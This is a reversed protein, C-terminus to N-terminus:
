KLNQIYHDAMHAAMAGDGTATVVQRFQTTRVDGAAFFGPVSTQMTADTAIFGARDMEVFGKFMDSNPQIGVFIFVADTDIVDGNDLKVGTVKKQDESLVEVVNRSLRLKINSNKVRDVLVQQGRFADRRHVITVDDSLKALYLADTLATDGGGVVVIRKGRFFPGDCTACYSVGRGAYQEEGKAGLHRHSAGTAAIVAKAVIEGDETEVHFRNGEKRISKAGNFAIEVGFSEAQNQLSEALQYGKTTPVGPYNEIDDILMLQGGPAMADIAMTRYGARAAYGAESLGAPGAGIVLVDIEKM